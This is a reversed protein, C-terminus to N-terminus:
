VPSLARYASSTSIPFPFPKSTSFIAERLNASLGASASAAYKGATAGFFLSLFALVVMLIGYRYVTPMSGASLGKDIIISTIFPLLIDMVVELATLLVCLFTDRKYQKLQRMVNRM